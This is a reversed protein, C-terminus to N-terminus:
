VEYLLRIVPHYGCRYDANKREVLETEESVTCRWLVGILDHEVGVSALAGRTRGCGAVKSMAAGVHSVAPVSGEETWVDRTNPTRGASGDWAGGGGAVREAGRHDVALVECPYMFVGWVLISARNRLRLLM